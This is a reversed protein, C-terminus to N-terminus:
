KQFFEWLSLKPKCIFLNQIVTDQKKNPAPTMQWGAKATLQKLYSENYYANLLPQDRIKDEFSDIANDIFASFLLAGDRKVYRRLLYLLSETDIPNNHTIVSYMWILDFKQRSPLPLSTKKTLKDGKPNYLQNYIHWYYFSFRDDRVNDKLYTVLAQDIDIGTYTNISLACNIITQAFRTGCGIDLIDIKSLDSYGLLENGYNIITSGTTELGLALVNASNRNFEKPTEFHTMKM